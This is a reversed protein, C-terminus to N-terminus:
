GLEISVVLVRSEGMGLVVVCVRGRVYFVGTFRVLVGEGGVGFFFSDFFM